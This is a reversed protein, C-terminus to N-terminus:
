RRRSRTVAPPAPTPPAPQGQQAKEAKETDAVAKDVDDWFHLARARFVKVPQTVIEGVPRGHEDFRTMVIQVVVADCRLTEM